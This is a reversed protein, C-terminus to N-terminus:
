RFFIKFTLSIFSSLSHLSLQSLLSYIYPLSHTLYILQLFHTYLSTHSSLSLSSSIHTFLSIYTLSFTSHFIGSQDFKSCLSLPLGLKPIVIRSIPYQAPRFTVCKPRLGSFVITQFQLVVTNCQLVSQRLGKSFLVKRTYCLQTVSFDRGKFVVM